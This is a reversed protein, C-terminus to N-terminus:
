IQQRNNKLYVQLSVTLHRDSIGFQWEDQKSDLKGSSQSDLM